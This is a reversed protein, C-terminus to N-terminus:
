RLRQDQLMNNWEDGEGSFIGDFNMDANPTMGSSVMGNMDNPNLGGMMSDMPLDFNHQGQMLYPPLPGFLQGELDDYVAPGSPGNSLFMPQVQSRDLINHLPDEKAAELEMMPQNPYAFPDASPFMMAGLDPLGDTGCNFPQQSSYQSSQTQSFSNSSKSDPTGSTSLDTSPSM